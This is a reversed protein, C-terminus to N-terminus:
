KQRPLTFSSLVVRRAKSLDSQMTDVGAPLAFLRDSAIGKSVLYAITAEVRQQSLRNNRMMNGERSAFGQVKLLVDPREELLPVLEDLLKKTEPTLTYSAKAFPITAEISSWELDSPASLSTPAPPTEVVITDSKKNDSSLADLLAKFDKRMQTTLEEQTTPTAPTAKDTTVSQPIDRNIILSQAPPTQINNHVQMPQRMLQLVLRELRAIRDDDTDPAYLRRLAEDLAKRKLVELKYQEVLQATVRAEVQPIRVALLMQYILEEAQQRSLPIQEAPQQAMAGLPLLATLCLTLIKHKITM